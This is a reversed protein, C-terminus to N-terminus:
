ITPNWIYGDTTFRLVRWLNPHNGGTSWVVVRSVKRGFIRNTTALTARNMSILIIHTRIGLDFLDNEAVQYYYRQRLLDMRRHLYLSSRDLKQSSM